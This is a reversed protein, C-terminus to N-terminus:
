ALNFEQISKKEQTTRKIDFRNRLWDGGCLLFQARDVGMSAYRPDIVRNGADFASDSTVTTMSISLVDCAMKSLIGYRYVSSDTKWWSIADFEDHNSNPPREKKDSLYVDLDSKSPENKLYELYEAEIDDLFKGGGGHDSSSKDTKAKNAEDAEVYENYLLHLTELFAIRREAAETTSYIDKFCWDIIFMKFRPDLVVAICMLLNCESWYKDFRVKMKTVMDIMCTDEGVNLKSLHRRLCVFDVGVCNSTTYETGQSLHIAQMSNKLLSCVVRVKNWEEESPLLTFSTDRQQYKSFVDKLDLAASLMSYTANWRTCCDLVLKKSSLASEKAIESFMSIRTESAVVYKVSERVKIIVDEIACLGDQVVLNLMHAYCKVPFLKGNFPLNNNLSLNEMLIRVAADNCAANDVTITWVKKEIEWEVLCKHLVDSIVRGSHPPPVECFNLIRKQLNMDFDMYQCSVVMYLVDEGSKWLDTSVNVRNANDLDTKLEEKEIEFAVLCDKKARACSVKKYHPNVSEMLSNFLKSEAFSFSLEHVIIMHSLTERFEEHDYEFGPQKPKEVVIKQYCETLHRDLHGTSGTKNFPLRDSCYICEAKVIGNALTVEKFGGWIKSTCKRKKTARLNEEGDEDSEVKLGNDDCGEDPEYTTLQVERVTPSANSENDPLADPASM